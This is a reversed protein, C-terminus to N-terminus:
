FIHNLVIPWLPLILMSLVTSVVIAQTAFHVDGDYKAALMTTMNGMPMAALVVSVGAVTADVHFLMCGLMVLVPIVILRMFSYFLTIPSVIHKVGGDALITGLFLMTVATTCGGLSKIGRLLFGPLQIQTLMLVIGIWVAIVCPHTLLKKIVDKKNPGTTFYSVGTSWMVIRQPILYISAYLLGLSGYLGEAVPNGLFGANSCVTGYQLIVRQKKPVRNYCFANILTCMIQLVVSVVFVQIGARMLEPTLTILFANVTTCPLFVDIVLDTLMKRGADTIVGRIRLFCGVGILLFMMLQLEFLGGIETM